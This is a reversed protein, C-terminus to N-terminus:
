LTKQRHIFYAWLVDEFGRNIDASIWTAGYKAAGLAMTETRKKMASIYQEKVAAPMAKVELGTELDVFRFPRNPLNFDLELTEDVVHFLLTEHKQHRLHRIADLIEETDNPNPGMFDSFVAVLSRRPLREALDHMVQAPNGTRNLPPTESLLPELHHFIIRQHTQSMKAPLYTRVEEDFLMLGSADRQRRMVESLAAACMASFAAKHRILKPKHKRDPFFMSASQDVVLHCRLNTEEEFRKVFMKDTRGYLKWDIFRTTEGSRYPRHEAFEVSFGHFPSRHMGTIFGEVVQKALFEINSFRSLSEIDIAM